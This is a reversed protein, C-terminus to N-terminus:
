EIHTLPWLFHSINQPFHPIQILNFSSFHLLMASPGANVYWIDWGQELIEEPSKVSEELSGRLPIEATRYWFPSNTWYSHQHHEQLFKLFGVGLFGELCCYGLFPPPLLFSLATGLEIFSWHSYMDPEWNKALFGAPHTLYIRKM